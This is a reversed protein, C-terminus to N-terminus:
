NEMLLYNRIRRGSKTNTVRIEDGTESIYYVDGTRVVVSAKAVDAPKEVENINRDIIDYEQYVRKDKEMRVMLITSNDKWSLVTSLQKLDQSNLSLSVLILTLPSLIRKYISNM